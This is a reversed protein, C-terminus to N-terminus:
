LLAVASISRSSFTVAGGVQTRGYQLGFTNSGATLNTFLFTADVYQTFALSSPRGAATYDSVALTTAGTVNVGIYFMQTSGVSPTVCAHITVLARTGTTLTVTPATGGGTLAVYPNVDVTGGTDTQASVNTLCVWSTGNYATIIGSPVATTGGTAAPVTPATLYAVMGETPSTLAADRAAETTFTMVAQKQLDNMQAATLVAGASFTTIAM